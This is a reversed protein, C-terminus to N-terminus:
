SVAFLMYWCVSLPCLQQTWTIANKGSPLVSAEFSIVTRSQCVAVPVCRCVSSVCLLYTLAIANEGSPLVSADAEYSLM